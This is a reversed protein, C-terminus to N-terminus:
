GNWSSDTKISEEDVHAELIELEGNIVMRSELENGSTSICEEAEMRPNSSSGKSM